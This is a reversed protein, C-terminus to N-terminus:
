RMKLVSGSQRSVLGSLLEPAFNEMGGRIKQTQRAKQILEVIELGYVDIEMVSRLGGM